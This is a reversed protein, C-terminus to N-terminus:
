TWCACATIAAANPVFRNGAWCTKVLRDYVERFNLFKVKRGYREVAHDILDVVQDNRIWAGAHHTLVYIGQKSVTADIAAKMDAITVPHHPKQLNHGQWDDPISSPMEWCLRAIVYPYPYNEVYNVFGRDRPV